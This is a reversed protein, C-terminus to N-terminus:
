VVVNGHIKDCFIKCLSGVVVSFVYGLFVGVFVASTEPYNAFIRGGFIMNALEIDMPPKSYTLVVAAFVSVIIAPLLFGWSLRRSPLLLAIKASVLEAIRREPVNARQRIETLARELRGLHFLDWLIAFLLVPMFLSFLLPVGVLGSRIGEVSIGADASWSERRYGRRMQKQWDLDNKMEAIQEKENKIAKKLSDYKQKESIGVFHGSDSALWWTDLIVEMDAIKLERIETLFTQNSIAYTTSPGVLYKMDHSYDMWSIGSTVILLLLFYSKIRIRDLNRPIANALVRLETVESQSEITSQLQRLTSVINRYRDIRPM